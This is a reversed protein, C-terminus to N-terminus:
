HLASDWERRRMAARVRAAAEPLNFPAIRDAGADILQRAPSDSSPMLVVIVAGDFRERLSEIDQPSPQTLVIVDPTPGPEPERVSYASGLAGQFSTLAWPLSIAAVRYHHADDQM